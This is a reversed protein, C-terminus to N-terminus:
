FDSDYAIIPDRVFLAALHFALKEDMGTEKVLYEIHEPNPKYPVQDSHKSQSYAHDSIYHNCTSSRPKHVYEPSAPDRQAPTRCDTGNIWVPWRMDIDAL